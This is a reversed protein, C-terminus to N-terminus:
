QTCSGTGVTQSRDRALALGEIVEDMTLAYGVEDYTTSEAFVLGIVVGDKDIVPGGSNGPEITSKVSYVKRETEGRNYIDRGVARFSDLITAPDATLDGGGPYGLVAGHTGNGAIGSSLALPKGALGEAKLVAIDLDPDFWLIKAKHRGAADVIFPQEVGAIVHANTIVLKTDAVFGSGQSIGGCGAGEIKVVSARTQKVASDLDGISPLPADTDIKPELGTFVEPFSNPDIFHGLKAVVDPAPPLSKNLQAIIFSNRIQRQLGQMPVSSFISASLWVILLLTAGAM